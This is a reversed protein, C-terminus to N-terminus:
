LNELVMTHKLLVKICTVCFLDRHNSHVKHDCFSKQVNLDQLDPSTVVITHSWSSVSNDLTAVRQFLVGMNERVVMDPTGPGDAHM